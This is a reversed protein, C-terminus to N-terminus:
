WIKESYEAASPFLSRLKLSFSGPRGDGVAEGDIAVIPMVYNTASTLFAERAAKAEAVTFPREAFALGERKLIDVLVSRTIGRLISKDASRTILVGEKTIIWANSSAGETVCGEDDVLWAETAGAEKAAQKALVPWLLQVSKIDPRGWRRDPVTKVSVGRAARAEGSGALLNRALCVLTPSTGPQPFAFDRRAVGRSVQLYVLGLRVRNRRVAERMVVGLARRSMPPAIRLEALSRELRELHRAEDVIRGGDVPCVEYVADGFQFGRDEVHVAASAYDHFRGNVYVARTM